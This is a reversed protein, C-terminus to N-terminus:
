IVPYLCGRGVAERGKVKNPYSGNLEKKVWDPVKRWVVRGGRGLDGGIMQRTQYM